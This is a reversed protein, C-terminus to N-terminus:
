RRRYALRGDVVQREVLGEFLMHTLLYLDPDEDHLIYSEPEFGMLRSKVPMEEIVRRDFEDCTLWGDDMWSLIHEIAPLYARLGPSLRPTTYFLTM